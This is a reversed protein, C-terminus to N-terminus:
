KVSATTATAAAARTMVNAWARGMVAGAGYEVNVGDQTPTATLAPNRTFTNSPPVSFDVPDMSGDGRNSDDEVYAIAQFDQGRTLSCGTLVVTKSGRYVTENSMRCSSGGLAHQGAKMANPTM